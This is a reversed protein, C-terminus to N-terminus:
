RKTRFRAKFSQSSEGKVKVTFTVMNGKTFKYSQKTRITSSSNKNFPILLKVTKTNKSSNKVTYNITTDRYLKTDDRRAISQIVKLDFNKGLKLNIATKKPTHRINTEGLLITMGNLKSYSRVIGKPLPFDLGKLHIYQIVSHKTEGNFYNPNSLTTKYIRKIPINKKSIYKIQTTENNAINVKFPITYFHYGEHAQQIVKDTNESTISKTLRYINQPRQPRNIDGALVYLKTDTFKKGSRNTISIFGDLDANNDKTNLIYNSKWNINKIIYDIEIKTNLSKKTSINWVLSPKTILKEPITHFIIDKNSVSIINGKKTKVISTSHNSSLLKAKINIFNKNNKSIRVTIEKNIHANLLKQQSLKDFRYQQSYLKLSSPLKINVSDTDITNAVGKYIIKKDNKKIKLTRQEHVLAINGNYVILSNNTNKDLLTVGFSINEFLFMIIPLLLKM